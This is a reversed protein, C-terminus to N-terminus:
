RCDDYTEFKACDRVDSIGDCDSDDADSGVDEDEDDCDRWGPVGDGDVDEDCTM